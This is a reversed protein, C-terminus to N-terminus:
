IAFLVAIQVQLPNQQSVNNKKYMPKILGKIFPKNADLANKLTNVIKVNVWKILQTHLFRSLKDASM